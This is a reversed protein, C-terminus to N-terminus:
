KVPRDAFTEFRKQYAAGTDFLRGERKEDSHFGAILEVRKDHVSLSSCFEQLTVNAPADVAEHAPASTATTKEGTM